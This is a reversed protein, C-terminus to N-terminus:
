KHFLKYPKWVTVAHNNINVIENSKIFAIRHGDYLKLEYQTASLFKFGNFEGKKAIFKPTPGNNNNVNFTNKILSAYPDDGYNFFAKSGSNDEVLLGQAKLEASLITEIKKTSSLTQRASSVTIALPKSTKRKSKAKTYLDMATLITHLSASHNEGHQLKFVPITDRLNGANALSLKQCTIRNMSKLCYNIAFKAMLEFNNNKQLIVGRQMNVEKDCEDEENEVAYKNYNQAYYKITEKRLTREGSMLLVGITGGALASAGLLFYSIEGAFLYYPATAFISVLPALFSTLSPYFTNKTTEEYRKELWLWFERSNQFATNADLTLNNEKEFDKFANMFIQISAQTSDKVEAMTPANIYMALILKKRLFDEVDVKNFSYVISTVLSQEFKEVFNQSSKEPFCNEYVLKIKEIMPKAIYLLFDTYIEEEICLLMTEIKHIETMLDITFNGFVYIEKPDVSKYIPNGHIDMKINSLYEPTYLKLLLNLTVPIKALSNFLDQIFQEDSIKQYKRVKKDRM